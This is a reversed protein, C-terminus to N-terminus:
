PTEDRNSLALLDKAKELAVNAIAKIRVEISLQDIVASVFDPKLRDIAALTSTVSDRYSGLERIICEPARGGGAAINRMGSFAVM